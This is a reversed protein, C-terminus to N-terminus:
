EDFSLRVDTTKPLAQCSLVYGKAVEEDELSYNILMDVEGQL